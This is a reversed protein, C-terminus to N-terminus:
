EGRILIGSANAYEGTPFNIDCLSVRSLKRLQKAKKGKKGKGSQIYPYTHQIGLREPARRM